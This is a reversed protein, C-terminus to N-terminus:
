GDSLNPYGSERKASSELLPLPSSICNRLDVCCSRDYRRTILDVVVEPKCNKVGLAEFLSKRAVNKISLPEVLILSLDTPVPINNEDYPFFIDKSVASSLGGNSLPILPLHKISMVVSSKNCELGRKLLM